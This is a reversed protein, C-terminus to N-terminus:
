RDQRTRGTKGTRNQRNQRDQEAQKAQGTRGTRNKRNREVARNQSYRESLGIRATKNHNDEWATRKKSIERERTDQVTQESKATRNQRTHEAL